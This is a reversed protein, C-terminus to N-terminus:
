LQTIGHEKLLGVLMKGARLRHERHIRGAAEADGRAIAQVVAAHDKNSDRPKPRLRLTAMRVRHSQDWCSGVLARLRANGAYDVLLRHFREDGHAWRPLDDAALAEEMDAVAQKLADLKAPALGRAAVLAAATSELSTLIEYIERTDDASIPLVRMGHRPRVEVMGENALRILAERVPTRSMELIEALEQELAQFGAPMDNDLIRQKIEAYARETQFPRSGGRRNATPDRDKQAQAMEIEKV